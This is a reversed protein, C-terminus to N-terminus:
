SPNCDLSMCLPDVRDGVTGYGVSAACAPHIRHLLRFAVYSNPFLNVLMASLVSFLRCSPPLYGQTSVLLQSLELCLCFIPALKVQMSITSTTQVSDTAAFVTFVFVFRCAAILMLMMKGFM